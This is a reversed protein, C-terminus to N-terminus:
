VNTCDSAHRGPLFACPEHHGGDGDADNGDDGVRHSRAFRGRRRFFELADIRRRGDFRAAAVGDLHLAVPAAEADLELSLRGVLVALVLQVADLDEDIVALASAVGDCALFREDALLVAREVDM